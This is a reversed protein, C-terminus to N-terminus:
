LAEGIQFKLQLNEHNCARHAKIETTILQQNVILFQNNAPQFEISRNSEM